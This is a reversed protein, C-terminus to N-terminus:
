LQGGTLVLTQGSLFSATPSLLYRVAGVVDAPGCLRGLPVQAELMKRQREDLQRNMGVPLFSPCIANITTGKRALEPALLRVTQELAAKGLSYAALALVPKELGATSGIAIFRGGGPCTRAFLLRALRITHSAGFALQQEIVDDQAELLGGRPLGPWAAHVVAFLPREALAGAVGAELEPSAVDAYLETVSPLVRVAEPLPQHHVMALVLYDRALDAVIEAGLGGAAGTLLVVPRDGGTSSLPTTPVTNAQQRREEHLTFSMGIEAYPLRSAADQVVVKLQGGLNQQNWAAIEGRVRVRRPVYLPALFRAQIAGLLANRGPLYMGLLASALGVQFAGHAICEAFNSHAAYDPDVHLPNFDGSNEAFANIDERTIEREFDATLGVRLDEATCVNAARRM